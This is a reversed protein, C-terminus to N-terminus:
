LKNCIEGNKAYESDKSGGFAAVRNGDNFTASNICHDGFSVQSGNNIYVM